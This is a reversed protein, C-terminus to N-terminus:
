IFLRYDYAGPEFRDLLRGIKAITNSSAITAPMKTYLDFSNLGMKSLGLVESALVDLDTQGYHRRIVLPAPIRSNGQYYPNRGREVPDAVGHVWLLARRADLVVASGRRVPFPDDKFTGDSSRHAAVYRLVPEETIELLDIQEVGHLGEILGQVEEARFPTRRHV